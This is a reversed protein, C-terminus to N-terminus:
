ITNNQDWGPIVNGKVHNVKVLAGYERYFSMCDELYDLAEDERHCARLALGARECAFARDSTVDYGEAHEMANKFLDMAGDINGSLAQLEARIILVKSEVLQPSSRSYVELRALCQQAIDAYKKKMKAIDKTVISESQEWLCCIASMADLFCWQVFLPTMVMVEATPLDYCKEIAERCLAFRHLYMCLMAQCLYFAFEAKLNKTQKLYLIEQEENAIVSGQLVYPRRHGSGDASSSAHSISSESQAATSVEVGLLNLAMQYFPRVLFLLYQQNRTRLLQYAGKTAEATQNLPVGAAYLDTVSIVTSLMAFENKAVDNCLRYAVKLQEPFGDRPLLLMNSLALKIGRCKKDQFVNDMENGIHECLSGRELDGSIYFYSAMVMFGVASLPCM